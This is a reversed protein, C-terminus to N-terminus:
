ARIELRHIRVPRRDLSVLSALGVAAAAVALLAGYLGTRVAAFLLLLAVGAVAQLALWAVRRWGATRLTEGAQRPTTATPKDPRVSGLALGVAALLTLLFGSM